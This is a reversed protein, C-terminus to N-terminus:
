PKVTAFIDGMYDKLGSSFDDVTSMIGSVNGKDYAQGIKDLSSVFKDTSSQMGSEVKDGYNKYDTSSNSNAPKKNGSNAPNKSGSSAPKKSGSSQSSSSGASAATNDAQDADDPQATPQATETVQNGEPVDADDNGCSSIALVLIVIVVALAVLLIIPKLIKKQETM